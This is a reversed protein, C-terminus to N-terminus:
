DTENIKTRLGYDGFIDELRGKGMKANIIIIEHQEIRTLSVLNTNLEELSEESSVSMIVSHARIQIMM